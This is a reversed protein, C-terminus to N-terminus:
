AFSALRDLGIWTKSPEGPIERVLRPVAYGPLRRKLAEHLAVAQPEEVAFHAAGEVRDLLHLYYPTVRCDLLRRSLAALAEASDNVGALLVAQNFLMTGGAALRQMAAAVSADLEAAHNAHVVVVATLRSDALVEVLRGTVREPLVIPLRTHLRLRTLHPIADLQGVLEGLRDDDLLLPDGGSLIVEELSADAAIAAVAEALGARHVGSDSYPFSRRFCYRCNVACGAAALLLARGSYKQVLGAATLRGQEALPDPSYGPQPKVEAAVPLVQRLLPDGADGPRMRAVFGRPVLLPFDGQAAKAERALDDPLGLLRCLEGADRVAEALLQKWSAAEFGSAAEGFGDAAVTSASSAPKVTEPRAAVSQM